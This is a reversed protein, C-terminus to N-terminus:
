DEGKFRKRLALGYIVLATLAFFFWQGAYALHNNPLDRPDPQALPELGAQPASAILRPGPAVIGEVRGGEWTPSQPSRSWGIAVDVAADSGPPSCSAHHAWGKDGSASTGARADISLVRQCDIRSRRFLVQEVDGPDHPWDFESSNSLAAEYNAILAEKEDKRGLQWIGLAVMTAVAALVFITPIIPLRRIM